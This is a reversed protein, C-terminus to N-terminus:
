SPSSRMLRFMPRLKPRLSRPKTEPRCPYGQAPRRTRRGKSLCGIGCPEFRWHRGDPTREQSGPEIWDRRRPRPLPRGSLCPRPRYSGRPPRPPKCRLHCQRLGTLPIPITTETRVEFDPLNANAQTLTEISGSRGINPRAWIGHGRSAGVGCGHLMRGARRGEHQGPEPLAQLRQLLREIPPHAAAAPSRAWGIGVSRGVLAGILRCGHRPPQVSGGHENWCITNLPFGGHATVWAVARFGGGANDRQNENGVTM